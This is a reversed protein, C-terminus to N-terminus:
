ARRGRFPVVNAARPPAPQGITELAKLAAGHAVALEVVGADAALHAESLTRARIVALTGSHARALDAAATELARRLDAVQGELDVIRRIDALAAESIQTLSALRANPDPTTDHAAM